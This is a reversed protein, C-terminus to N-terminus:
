GSRAFASQGGALSDVTHGDGGWDAMAVGTSYYDNYNSVSIASTIDIDYARGGATAFINNVVENNAGSTAIKFAASGGGTTALNVSNHYIKQFSSSISSVSDRM